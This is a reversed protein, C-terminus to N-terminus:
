ELPGWGAQPAKRPLPTDREAAPEPATAFDQPDEQVTTTGGHGELRRAIEALLEFNTFGSLPTQEEHRLAARVAPAYENPVEGDTMWKQVLRGSRGLMKGLDDYTLRDRKLM